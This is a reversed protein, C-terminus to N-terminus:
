PGHFIGAAPHDAVADFGAQKARIAAKGFDELIGEIETVTLERPTIGYKEMPVASPAVPSGEIVDPFTQRGCHAIQAAIKGGRDHVVQALKALGETHADSSIGLMRPAGKGNPTVYAYGIVILGIDGRALEDYLSVLAGTVHGDDRALGKYTASRVFRNSLTMNKLTIPDFVSAM